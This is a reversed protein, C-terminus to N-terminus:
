FNLNAIEEHPFAETLLNRHNKTKKLEFENFLIRNYSKEGNNTPTSPQQQEPKQIVINKVKLLHLAKVIHPKVEAGVMIQGNYFLDIVQKLVFSSVDSLPVILRFCM